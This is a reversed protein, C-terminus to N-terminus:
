DLSNTNHVKILHNLNDQDSDLHKDCTVCTYSGYVPQSARRGARTKGVFGFIFPDQELFKM